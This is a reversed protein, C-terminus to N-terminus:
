YRDTAYHKYVAIDNPYAVTSRSKDRDSFRQDQLRWIARLERFRVSLYSAPVSQGRSPALSLPRGQPDRFGALFRWSM